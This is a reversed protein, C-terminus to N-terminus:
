VYLVRQGAQPDESFREAACVPVCTASPRERAPQHDKGQLHWAARETINGQM